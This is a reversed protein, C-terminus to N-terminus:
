FALSQNAPILVVGKVLFVFGEGKEKAPTPLNPAKPPAALKAPAAAKSSAPAAPAYAPAKSLGKANM